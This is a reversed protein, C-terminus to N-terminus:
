GSTETDMYQRLEEVSWENIKLHKAKHLQYEDWQEPPTSIIGQILTGVKLRNDRPTFKIQKLVEPKVGYKKNQESM